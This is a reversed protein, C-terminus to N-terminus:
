NAPQRRLADRDLRSCPGPSREDALGCPGGPPHQLWTPEGHFDIYTQMSGTKLMEIVEPSGSSRGDLYPHAGGLILSQCREPAVAALWFGEIAGRSYGWFHAKEIGTADLVAAVDQAVVDRRYAAADHPKDSDGFGRPDLLILQYEDRLAQVVAVDERQWDRGRGMYGVHLVLAPGSGEVMYQIRVGDNM